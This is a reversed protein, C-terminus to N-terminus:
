YPAIGERQMWAAIWAAARVGTGNQSWQRREAVEVQNGIPPMKALLWAM